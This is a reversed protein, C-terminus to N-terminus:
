RPDNDGYFNLFEVFTRPYFADLSLVFPDYGLEEELRVVLIAFGISDLGTELLVSDDRLEPVVESKTYSKYVENFVSVIQERLLKNYM